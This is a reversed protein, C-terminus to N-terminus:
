IDTPNVFYFCGPYMICLPGNWVEVRDRLMGLGPGVGMILSNILRSPRMTGKSALLASPQPLHPARPKALCMSQCAITTVVTACIGSRQWAFSKLLPRILLARNCSVQAPWSIAPRMKAASMWLSTNPPLFCRERISTCRSM